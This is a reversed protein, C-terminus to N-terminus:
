TLKNKPYTRLPALDELTLSFWDSAVLKLRAFNWEVNLSSALERIEDSRLPM